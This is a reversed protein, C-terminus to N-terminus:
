RARAWRASRWRAKQWRNSWFRSSCAEKRELSGRGSRRPGGWGTSGGTRSPLGAWAHRILGLELAKLVAATINGVGLREYAQRLLQNFTSESIGFRLALQAQTARPDGIVAKLAELQRATLLHPTPPRAKGRIFELVEHSFFTGGSAVVRVAECLRSSLVDDKLLYGRVDADAAAAILDPSGEQTLIIIQTEPYQQRLRQVAPLTRFRPSTRLNAGAAVPLGLDVLAVGPRHRKVLAELEEGSGGTAVLEVNRCEGLHDTISQLILHHDELAVVTIRQPSPM